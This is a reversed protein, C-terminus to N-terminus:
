SCRTPSSRARSAGQVPVDERHPRRQLDQDRHARDPRRPGCPIEITETGAAATLPPRSRRADPVAGRDAPGAPRRRRRERGLLVARPVGRGVRRRRGPEERARRLRADRRQPLAGDPRRRRGRHGRGAARARHAGRRGARRPDPGRAGRAPRHRGGRAGAAPVDYHTATDDLLDIVGHFDAEHGIPLEVPAVGAGFTAASRPWRATSTPGSATSSTSSSSGPCGWAPRPGGPTRPRPRCATPRASSWWPSTSTPSPPRDDRRRLRRVRAHRPPQGEGRQRHLPGPQDLHLAPPGGGRARLGHRHLGKRGIGAPRHRRHGGALGRGPHDQRCRSPGVLAVNRIATPDHPM